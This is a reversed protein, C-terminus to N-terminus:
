GAKNEGEFVAEVSGEIANPTMVRLVAKARESAVRHADLAGCELCTPYGLELRRDAYEEECKICTAM